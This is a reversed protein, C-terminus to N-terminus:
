IYWDALNSRVTTLYFHTDAGVVPATWKFHMPGKSDPLTHTVASDSYGCAMLKAEGDTSTSPDAFHGVPVNTMMDQIVASLLSERSYNPILPSSMVHLHYITYCVRAALLFGNYNPGCISITYVCGAVFTDASFQISSDGTVGPNLAPGVNM